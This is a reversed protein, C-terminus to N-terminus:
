GVIILSEAHNSPDRNLGADKQSATKGPVTGRYCDTSADSLFADKVLHTSVILASHEVSAGLMEDHDKVLTANRTFALRTALTSALDSDISLTDDTSITQNRRPYKRASQPHGFFGVVQFVGGTPPPLSPFLRRITRAQLCAGGGSNKRKIYRLKNALHALSSKLNLKNQPLIRCNTLNFLKYLNM